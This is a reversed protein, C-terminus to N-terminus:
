FTIGASNKGYKGTFNQVLANYYKIRKSIRQKKELENNNMTRINDYM